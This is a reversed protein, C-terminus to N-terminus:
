YGALTGQFLAQCLRELYTREDDNASSLSLRVAKLSALAQEKTEALKLYSPYGQPSQDVTASGSQNDQSGSAQGGL